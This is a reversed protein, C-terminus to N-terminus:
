EPLYQIEFLDNYRRQDTMATVELVYKKGPQLEEELPLYFEYGKLFAEWHTDDEATATVDVDPWLTIRFGRPESSRPVFHYLEFRWICPLQVSQGSADLLETMAKLHVQPHDPLRVFETLASIRLQQVPGPTGSQNGATTVNQHTGCGALMAGIFFLGIMVIRQQIWKM